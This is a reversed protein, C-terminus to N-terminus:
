VEVMGYSFFFAFVCALTYVWSFIKEPMKDRDKHCPGAVKGRRGIASNGADWQSGPRVIMPRQDTQREKRQWIRPNFSNRANKGPHQLHLLPATARIHTCAGSFFLAHCM